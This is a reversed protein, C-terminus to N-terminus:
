SFFYAKSQGEPQDASYTVMGGHGLISFWKGKGGSSHGYPIYEVAGVEARIPPSMQVPIPSKTQKGM